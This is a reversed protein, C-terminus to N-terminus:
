WKNILDKRENYINMIKDILKTGGFALTGEHSGYIIWSFTRDTYVTEYCDPNFEHKDLEYDIRDESLM